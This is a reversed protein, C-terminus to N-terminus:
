DKEYIIQRHAFGIKRKIRSKGVNIVPLMPVQTSLGDRLARADKGGDAVIGLKRMVEFGIEMLSLAPVPRGSLVSPRAKAYIGYGVRVLEGSGVLDKVARSVQRYHGFGDFEKRLFVMAPSTRISASIREIITKKEM